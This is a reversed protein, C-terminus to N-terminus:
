RPPVVICRRLYRSGNVFTDNTALTNVYTTSSDYGREYLLDYTGPLLRASYMSSDATLAYSGGSVYRWRVYGIRQRASTDRAVLILTADPLDSVNNMPLAAGNYTVAGGIMQASIDIDLRNMGPTVAVNTRLVRRGNVFTDSAALTNVHTTSTDYGREYVLDYTGPLLQTTYTGSDATLRYTGGSVYRWRVYAIRQRAGTDQAILTLSADPLDSVNTAPLSTGNYTIAGTLTSSPIDVNLTNAGPNIVVGARLVRRGNVFTDGTALTNVYTTSTDYGREYVLDYTGPLLRTTYTGSDATLRYTGGSVYRWRVYAIRQRAGTDRAVLTLSADPLDSVNMAPLAAGNYTISGTLMSSPIDVNLTNAGANIVVGTRLVRRGNVFTDGTALTNVYTTSTDYGREYVLDYTGPLVTTTFSSSDATLRYTGGSVYRWRVYAIRQRAGTDQAVLTLSADPLDSANMAPLAAGNYTIAGTVTSSPINIDLRNAGPAIVVRSRLVRRGNVFTDSTALTNVYTTSTDYGREYVLDYTGPLVTTTFSSSDATLRYTGGSVYRWRVYAIRQRAGTDLAVLTLSADPLDSANTAPLAAGNYTIAGTVTSSAVDINMVNAGPGIVVSSRLVRRGNVFTDSTALANVYTTSSDYGREYVLDYIGPLLRTSYAGSDATLRYTGGSVYRWRVYAIRQRAGTDLAVLTLSADPLDSANMAPLSTGNYTIAGTLTAVPIDITTPLPITSGCTTTAVCSMIVSGVCAGTSTCVDNSTCAIGDDCPSGAARPTLTFSRTTENCAGYSQCPPAGAPPAPVNTALCGRADVGAAGPRCVETGTCWRGDDCRADVAAHREAGAM